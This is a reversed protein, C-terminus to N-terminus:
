AKALNLFNELEPLIYEQLFFLCRRQVTPPLGAQGVVELSKLANDIQKLLEPAPFVYRPGPVGQRRCIEGILEREVAFEPFNLCIPMAGGAERRLVVPRCITNATIPTVSSNKQATLLRGPLCKWTSM